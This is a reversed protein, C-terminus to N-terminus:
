NEFIDGGIVKFIVDYLRDMDDIAADVNGYQIYQDIASEYIDNVAMIFFRMDYDYITYSKLENYIRNLIDRKKNNIMDIDLRTSLIIEKHIQFIEVMNIDDLGFMYGNYIIMRRYSNISEFLPSLLDDVCNLMEDISYQNTEVIVIHKIKESLDIASNIIDYNCHKTIM